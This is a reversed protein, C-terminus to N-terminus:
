IGYVEGSKSNIDAYADVVGSTSTSTKQVPTKELEVIRVELDAIVKSDKRSQEKVVDDVDVKLLKDVKDSLEAVIDQLKTIDENVMTKDEPNNKSLQCPECAPNPVIAAGLFSIETAVMRGDVMKDVSLHEVSIGNVKNSKVLSIMDTGEISNDSIFIDGLIAGDEFRKNQIYGIINRENREEGSYHRNWLTNDRWSHVSKSLEEPTYNIGNWTGEAIIPVGAVLLGGDVDQRIPPFEAIYM